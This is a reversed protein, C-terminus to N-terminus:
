SRQGRSLCGADVEVVVEVGDHDIGRKSGMESEKENMNKKIMLYGKRKQELFEEKEL